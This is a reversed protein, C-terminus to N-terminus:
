DPINLAKAVATFDKLDVNKLSASALVGGPIIVYRFIYAPASYNQNSVLVIKGEFVTQILFDNEYFYNLKRLPATDSNSKFYVLVLGKDLIAKTIKPTAIIAQWKALKVFTVDLWPSYIVNVTGTAGKPGAAGKDGKPGTAGMEGRPGQEGATGPPGEKECSLLLTTLFLASLILKITKM